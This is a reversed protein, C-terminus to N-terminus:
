IFIVVFWFFVWMFGGFFKFIMIPIFSQSLGCLINVIGDLLYGYVLLKKRGLVDVFIKKWKWTKWKYKNWHTNIRIYGIFIGLSNSLNDHRVSLLFLYFSAFISNFSSDHKCSEQLKFWYMIIWNLLNKLYWNVLMRLQM